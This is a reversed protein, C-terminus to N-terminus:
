RLGRQLFWGEPNGDTAAQWNTDNAIADLVSTRLDFARSMSTLEFLRRVPGSRNTVIVLSGGRQRLRKLAGVLVGLGTSDLFTVGRLDVVLHAAGSDNLADRLGSATVADIDGTARVVTCDGVGVPELLLDHSQM